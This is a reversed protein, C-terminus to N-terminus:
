HKLVWDQATPTLPKRLFQNVKKSADTFDPTGDNLVEVYNPEFLSQLNQKAVQTEFHALKVISDPVSRERARNRQMAVELSTNVFVMMTQYGIAELADKNAKTKEFDKATGDIILGLRGQLFLFQKKNTIEKARKRVIDRKEQEEPPMKPDLKEKRMLIEFADDSNIVRLGAAQLGLKRAVFSKGSGPGGAMFIAKFINPDNVGELLIENILM